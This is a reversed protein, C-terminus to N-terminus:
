SEDTGDILVPASHLYRTARQTSDIDRFVREVQERSLGVVEAAEGPSVRHNRAHLCLDMKELPLLFHYEEQSQELPYTDATPIREQIEAPIDLYRALEYVQAKYLHAIPKFDAAGDGNKVFFGLDYELRNATGAVAFQLRDAHFYEIMKRVRQKFGTAAVIERYAAATLRRRIETGEPSRVVVSFVRYAERDLTKRMILKCKFDERFEPILRRIAEDRRRYCGCAVLTPTIEEIQTRMELQGAIRRAFDLSESSSEKEPLLLGLVRERGVARICLSAVVSSDIGGSLGVVIGKRRLDSFVIERIRLAIREAEVVADIKLSEASYPLPVKM